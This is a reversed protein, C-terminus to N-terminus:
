GGLPFDSEEIYRIPLAIANPFVPVLSLDGREQAILCM